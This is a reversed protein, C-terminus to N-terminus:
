KAFDWITKYTKGLELKFWFDAYAKIKSILCNQVWDYALEFINCINQIIKEKKYITWAFLTICHLPLIEDLNLDYVVFAFCDHFYKVNKKYDSLTFSSKFFQTSTNDNFVIWIIDLLSYKILLLSNKWNIQCSKGQM